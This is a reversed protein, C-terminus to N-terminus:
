SLINHRSRIENQYRDWDILRNHPVDMLRWMSKLKPNRTLTYVKEKGSYIDYGEGNQIALLSKCGVEERKPAHYHDECRCTMALDEGCNSCNAKDNM